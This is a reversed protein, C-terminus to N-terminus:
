NEHKIRLSVDGSHVAKVGADTKILLCGRDDIGSEEGECLVKNNEIVKVSKGMFADHREWEERLSAFGKDLFQSILQEYESYVRAVIDNRDAASLGVASLDAWGLESQLNIGASMDVNIGIGVVLVLRGNYNKAEILVGALKKSDLLVDNPWKLALGDIGMKSLSKVLALGIVLSISAIEPVRDTTITFSMYINSAAPSCWDRGARGRGCTQSDTICLMEHASLLQLNEVVWQNSSSLEDFVFVQPMKKVAMDAMASEIGVQSLRRKAEEASKIDM